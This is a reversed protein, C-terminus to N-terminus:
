RYSKIGGPKWDTPDFWREPDHAFVPPIRPDFTFSHSIGPLTVRWLKGQYQVPVEVVARIVTEGPHDPLLAEWNWALNGDPDWISMRRGHERFPRPLEFEMWFSQMERPVMFYYQRFWHGRPVPGGEPFVLVEPVDHETFPVRLNPYYVFRSDLDGDPPGTFRLRYLGARADAPLQLTGGTPVEDGELVVNGRPDEIWYGYEAAARYPQLKFEIEQGEEKLLYVDPQLSVKEGQQDPRPAFGQSFAKPLPTVRKGAKAIAALAVPLRQIYWGTFGVDNDTRSNVFMGDFPADDGTYTSWVPMDIEGEVRRLYKEDGTVHYGYAAPSIQTLLRAGGWPPTRQDALFELSTKFFEEYDTGQGSWRHFEQHGNRWNRGGWGTRASRDLQYEALSRAAVLFWPDWTNVYMEIFQQQLNDQGRGSPLERRGRGYRGDEIKVQGAWALAVERAREYGTLFYSHWLYDGGDVYMWTSPGRFGAWPILNRNWWGIARFYNGDINDSFFDALEPDFYHSFAVDTMFRTAAEAPKFYAPNGSRLYPMWSYPWGHHAKRFARYLTAERTYPDFARLLDGWIWMGYVGMHDVWQSPKAAYRAYLEEEEPFQDPDYPHFENMAGSAAIWEPDVVARLTDDNLGRMLAVAKEDVSENPEPLWLWMEFTRAMGQANVSEPEGPRFHHGRERGGEYIPGDVYIMPLSLDMEEGTHAFDLRWARGTSEPEERRPIGDRPWQYYVMAQDEFALQSPYLQWFDKTGFVVPQEGLRGAFVGPAREGEVPDQGGVVEFADSDYQLLWEGKLWQDPEDFRALFGEPSLQDAMSFRWGMDAIRDDPANSDGTYLWTHLIRVLRSGEFFTWRIDFQCFRDEGDPDEYWGRARVVSKVPGNTELEFKTEPPIHYRTGGVREVFAGALGKATLVPTLADGEKEVGAIGEPGIQLGGTNLSPFGSESAQGLASEGIERTQQPDFQLTLTRPKGDLDLTFDCLVWRISGFRAWEATVMTQLPVENGEEDLLKLSRADWLAGRPFPVGVTFPLGAAAVQDPNPINLAVQGSTEPEPEDALRFERAVEGIVKGDPTVWVVEFTFSESSSDRPLPFSFYLQYGPVEEASGRLWAEQLVEGASDLVGMWLDGEVPQDRRSEVLGDQEPHRGAPRGKREDLLVVADLWGDSPPYIGKSLFMEVAPYETTWQELVNDVLWDVTLRGRLYGMLALQPKMEDAEEIGAADLGAMELAARFVTALAWRAEPDAVNGLQAGIYIVRGEGIPNITVVGATERGVLPIASTIEGLARAEGYWGWDGELRRTLPHDPVLIEGEMDPTLYRQGGLLPELLSLNRNAGALTYPAGGTVILTGGEEVWQYIKFVDEENWPRFDPGRGVTSVIVARYNSFEEPELWSEANHFPLAKVQDPPRHFTGARNDADYRYLDEEIVELGRVEVTESGSATSPFLASTGFNFDLLLLFLLLRKCM